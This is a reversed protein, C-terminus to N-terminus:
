DRRKPDPPRLLERQIRWYDNRRPERSPDIHAPPLLEPHPDVGLRIVWDRHHVSRHRRGCLLALNEVETPGGDEWHRIHHAECMWPPAVCGPFVCGGDRAVLAAWIGATVTRYTHGVSLPVGREDVVIPTIDCDCALRRVAERTLASGTALAAPPSGAENRLCELGVTLHLHPLVGRSKENEGHRLTQSFVLALADARRQPGSHSDRTGDDAPQPGDLTALLAKAHAINEISDRWTLTESGDGHIRFGANRLKAVKEDEPEAGDPDAAHRMARGLERLDKANLKRAAELMTTRCVDMTETDLDAPLPCLADLIAYAQARNNAFQWLAASSEM